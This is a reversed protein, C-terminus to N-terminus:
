NTASEAKAVLLSGSAKAAALITGGATPDQVAFLVVRQLSSSTTLAGPPLFNQIEIRARYVAKSAESAKSPDLEGGEADFLRPSTQLQALSAGDTLLVEAALRQQIQSLVTSVKAEKHTTLAVPILGVLGIIAFAFIGLAMAVEVLSFGNLGQSFIQPTKM